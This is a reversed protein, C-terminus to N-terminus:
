NTYGHTGNLYGKLVTMHSAGARGLATRSAASSRRRFLRCVTHTHAHTRAHTHTHTHTDAHACRSLGDTHIYISIGGLLAVSPLPPPPPGSPSPPGGIQVLQRSNALAGGDTPAAAAVRVYRRRAVRLMIFSAVHLMCRSDRSTATIRLTRCNTCGAIVVRSARATCRAVRGHLMCGSYAVHAGSRTGHPRFSAVHLLRM